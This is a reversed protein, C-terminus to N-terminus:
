AASWDAARLLEAQWDAALRAARELRPRGDDFDVVTCRDAHRPRPPLPDFRADTLLSLAIPQAACTKRYRRLVEEALQLAAQVPSGGGGALPAIWRENHAQAKRPAQLLRAGHGDFAIVALAERKRYSAASWDLLLGKALALRQGRLMSASCDLLICHLGASGETRRRRRLHERALPQRGKAALTRPWDM